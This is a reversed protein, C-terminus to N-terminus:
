FLRPHPGPLAQVREAAARSSEEHEMAAIQRCLYSVLPSSQSEARIEQLLTTADHRAQKLSSTDLSSIQDIRIIPYGDIDVANM